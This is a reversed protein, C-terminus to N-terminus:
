GQKLTRLYLGVKRVLLLRGRPQASGILAFTVLLFSEIPQDAQQFFCISAGLIELSNLLVDQALPNECIVLLAVVAADLVSNLM